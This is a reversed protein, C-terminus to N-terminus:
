LKKYNPNYENTYVDSPKIQGPRLKGEAILREIWYDIEPGPVVQDSYYAYNEVLSVDMKLRDAIIQRAQQPNENVWKATKALIAVITKVAEPNERAFKGNVTYPNMGSIGKDIDYDSWLKHLTPTKEARGSTPPHIISVEVLGQTLAQDLQDDPVQLFEVKGEYGNDKLYKKTVYESCAGFSNIAIKKGVLDKLGTIGSDTRVFYKMHPADATARTGAAIIKVDAGGAIAAMPLPTHRNAFDISGNVVSPIIQGSAIRGVYKPKVGSDKFYGLADAIYFLDFAPNEPYKFEVVAKGDKAPPKSDASKGGCGAIVSVVLIAALLLGFHRLHKSTLM